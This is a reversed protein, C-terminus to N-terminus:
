LVNGRMADKAYQAIEDDIHPKTALWNKVIEATRHKALSRFEGLGHLAHYQAVPHSVYLSAEMEKFALDLLTRDSDTSRRPWIGCIDWFMFFSMGPYSSILYSKAADRLLFNKLCPVLSEILEGFLGLERVEPTFPSTEILPSYLNWFGWGIQDDNFNALPALPNLHLAVFHEAMLRHNSIWIPSEIKWIWDKDQRDFMWEVWDEFSIHNEKAM